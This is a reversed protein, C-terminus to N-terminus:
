LVVRKKAVTLSAGVRESLYQFVAFINDTTPNGSASLMRMVSKPNAKMKEALDSFGGTANVLNRLMILGARTDGEILTEIADKMHIVRLARDAALREVIIDNMNRM